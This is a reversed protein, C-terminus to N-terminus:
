VCFITNGCRRDISKASVASLVAIRALVAVRVRKLQRDADVLECRLEHWHVREASSKAFLRQKDGSNCFADDFGVHGSFEVLEPRGNKVVLRCKVGHGAIHALVVKAAARTQAVERTPESVLGASLWKILM